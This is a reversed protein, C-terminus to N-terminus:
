IRGFAQQTTYTFIQSKKASFLKITYALNGGKAHMGFWHVAENVRAKFFGTNLEQLQRSYEQGKFCFFGVPPRNRM